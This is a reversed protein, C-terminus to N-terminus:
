RRRTLDIDDGAAAIATRHKRVALGMCAVDYSAGSGDMAQDILLGEERFGLKRLVRIASRDEVLVRASIKEVGADDGTLIARRVLSTGLRTGRLDPSVVVLISAGHRMWPARSLQLAAFGALVGRSRALIGITHHEDMTQLWCHVVPDDVGDARLFLRESEPVAHLLESMEAVHGALLPEFVFGTADPTSILTQM